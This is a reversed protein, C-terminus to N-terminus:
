HVALRSLLLIFAAAFEPTGVEVLFANCRISPPPNQFMDIRVLRRVFRCRVDLLSPLFRWTATCRSDEGGPPRPTPRAESLIRPPSCFCFCSFNVIILLRLPPTPPPPPPPPPHHPPPHPPPPPPPPPTPPQTRQSTIHGLGPIMDSLPPSGLWFLTRNLLGDVPSFFLRFLVSGLEPAGSYCSGGRIKWSSTLL